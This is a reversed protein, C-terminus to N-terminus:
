PSDAPPEELTDMCTEQMTADEFQSEVPTYNDDDWDSDESAVKKHPPDSTVENWTPAQEDTIIKKRCLKLQPVKKGWLHLPVAHGIVVSPKM